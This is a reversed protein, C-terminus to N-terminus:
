VEYPESARMRSSSFEFRLEELFAEKDTLVFKKGKRGYIEYKKLNPIWYPKKGQPFDVHVEVAKDGKKYTFWLFVDPHEQNAESWSYVDVRLM